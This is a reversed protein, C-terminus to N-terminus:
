GRESYWRWAAFVVAVNFLVCIAFKIRYSLKQTKHRLMRGAIWGGPWGGVASWALLTREPVRRVEKKAANKDFAYLVATIASALGTWIAFVIAINVATM